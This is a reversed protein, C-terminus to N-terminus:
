ATVKVWTNDPKFYILADVGSDDHTDICYGVVRVFEDNGSPRTFDFHGATTESIYVPAGIVPTGIIETSPVRIFGELIVGASVTRGNGVGLLQSAGTAVNDALALDWSANTHLFYIQGDTLMEDAGYILVKSSTHDGDSLTTEFTENEFNVNEKIGLCKTPSSLTVSEGSSFVWSHTSTALTTGSSGTEYTNIIVNGGAASGTSKGGFLSIDGGARNTQGATADGSIISLDGGDGDSHPLRKINSVTVDDPGITIDDGVIVDDSTIIDGTISINGPTDLTGDDNFSWTNDYARLATGSAGAPATLIKVDGGVGSGTPQGASLQLNGGAKNTQGATANGAVVQLIGGTDDSHPLRTITAGGDDDAGITLTESDYTLTSEVSIEDADKYTCIGNATSGDFALVNVSSAMGGIDALVEAGTRYGVLGNTGSVLFKDTDAGPDSIAAQLYVDVGSTFRVAQDVQHEGIVKGVTKM